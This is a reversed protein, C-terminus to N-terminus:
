RKSFTLIWERKTCSYHRRARRQDPLLEVVSDALKFKRLSEFANTVIEATNVSTRARHVEGVVLVAKGGRKLM